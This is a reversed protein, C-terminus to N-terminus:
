NRLGITLRTESNTARMNLHTWCSRTFTAQLSSTGSNPVSWSRMVRLISYGKLTWREYPEPHYPNYPIAIRTLVEADRDQSLRLATWRLLKLKLAVFEKKNPKASTIDFYNEQRGIRVMVDVRSDPDKLESGQGIM